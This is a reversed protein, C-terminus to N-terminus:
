FPPEEVPQPYSRAPSSWSRDDQPHEAVNSAPNRPQQRQGSHPTSRFRLSPGMQDILLRTKSRKQGSQKDTWEQTEIRGEVMALDGKVLSETINEALKEWAEGDIWLTKDDVWGQGNPDKKKQNAVLRVSVVAKGGPTYKLEPDAALTFEHAIRPLSV